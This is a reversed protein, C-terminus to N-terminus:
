ESQDSIKIGNMKSLGLKNIAILKGQIYQTFHDSNVAKTSKYIVRSINESILLNTIYFYQIVIHLHKMLLSITMKYDVGFIDNNLSVKGNRQKKLSSSLM